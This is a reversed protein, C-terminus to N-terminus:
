NNKEINEIYSLYDAEFIKIGEDGILSIPYGCKNIVSVSIKSAMHKNDIENFGEKNKYTLNNEKLAFIMASEKSLGFGIGNCFKNTYDKSIKSILKSPQKELAFVEGVHFFIITIMFLAILFSNFISRLSIRIM